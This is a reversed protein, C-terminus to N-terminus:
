EGADWFSPGGTASWQALVQVIRDAATEDDGPLGTASEMRSCADRM